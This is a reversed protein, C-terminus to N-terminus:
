GELGKQGEKSKMGSLPITVYFTSGRGVESDFRMSLGSAEIIQKVLYLGLGNGDAVVEHANDARFFKEFIRGQVEKAIGIGNDKVSIIYEKPSVDLSVTVQGTKGVSSYQIANTLLNSIIQRLLVRDVNVEPLKEPLKLSLHCGTESVLPQVEKCVEEIFAVLDTSVPEIKLRGTELRSVNLLDNLLEVMRRSGKYIELFYEKQKNNLIGADGSQLMEIYWNISTLPTRLQHSALSVFETKARDIAEEKTIDRFVAIVGTIKGKLKIPAVTIGIPFKTKDPRVFYTTTTTTTTTTTKGTKLAIYTPRQELPILHGQKDELPLSNVVRGILGPAKWGLIEEGKKNLFLVKRQSDIALVGEGINELIAEDKTKEEEIKSKAVDLDEMVNVMAKKSEELEKNSELLKAEAIKKETIDQELGIFFLINNNKDLVPTIRADAQYEEGNKRKNTIQGEFEKKYTKIMKWMKEYFEKPMRKGWLSPRKGIMENKSYGTLKEAAKNVYLIVADLDTIVVHDSINDLALAQLNIQEMQKYIVLRFLILLLVFTAASFSAVAILLITQTEKIRDNVDDLKFYAEIIGSPVSEGKFAIPVYIELLQKYGQESVNEAKVKQGIETVAEGKLAERFEKNDPFRKGVISQDDSFIVKGSYDWVKIRIIENTKVKEYFDRFINDARAPDTLSFDAPKLDKAESVVASSVAIKARNIFSNQIISNSAFILMVALVAFIIATLIYFRVLTSLKNFM